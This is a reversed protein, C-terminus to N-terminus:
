STKILLFMICHMDYLEKSWFLSFYTPLESLIGSSYVGGYVTCAGGGEQSQPEGRWSKEM